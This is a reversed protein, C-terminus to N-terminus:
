VATLEESNDSLNVALEDRRPPSPNKLSGVEKNFDFDTAAAGTIIPPPQEVASIV